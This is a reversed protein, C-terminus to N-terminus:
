SEIGALGGFPRAVRLFAGGAMTVTLFVREVVVVAGDAVSVAVEAGGGGVTAVLCPLRGSVSFVLGGGPDGGFVCVFFVAGGMEGRASGFFGGVVGGRVRAPFAGSTVGGPGPTFCDEGIRVAAFFATVLDGVRVSTLFVLGVVGGRVALFVVGATGGFASTFCIDPDGVLAAAFSTVGLKDGRPAAFCAAGLEGGWPAEFLTGSFGGGRLSAFFDGGMEGFSSSTFLSLALFSSVFFAATFGPTFGTLLFDTTGGLVALIGIGSGFATGLSGNGMRALRPADPGTGGVLRGRGIGQPASM